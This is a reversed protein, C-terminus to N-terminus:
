RNVAPKSLQKRKTKLSDYVKTACYGLLSMGAYGAIAYIFYEWPIVGESTMRSLSDLLWYACGVILSLLSGRLFYTFSKGLVAFAKYFRKFWESSYAAILVGLLISVIVILPIASSVTQLMSFSTNSMTMATANVYDVMVRVGRFGM